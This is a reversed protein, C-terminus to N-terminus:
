DKRELEMIKNVRRQHRGGGFPTELWIKVIEKADKLDLLPGGLTLVNANNHERSNVATKIDYCMAARVGKVKNAAMCSGIGAGDIVIGRDYSGDAVSNAAKAAYDPYDVSEKTYTGFDKVAYGLDEIYGRLINKLELGGHDAAIAVKRVKGDNTEAPRDEVPKEPYRSVVEKVIREITDKQIM